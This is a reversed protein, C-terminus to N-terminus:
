TSLLPPTRGPSPTTASVGLTTNIFPTCPLALSLLSTRDLILRTHWQPSWRRLVPAQLSALTASHIYRWLGMAATWYRKQCEDDITTYANLNCNYKTTRM